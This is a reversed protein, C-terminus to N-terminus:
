NKQAKLTQLVTDSQIAEPTFSNNKWWATISAAATFGWTFLQTVTDDTFPLPNKGFMVLAQNILALLLVATRIITAKSVKM